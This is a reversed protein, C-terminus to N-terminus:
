HMRCTCSRGLRAGVTWREGNSAIAAACARADQPLGDYGIYGGSLWRLLSYLEPRMRQQLRQKAARMKHQEGPRQSLQPIQQDMLQVHQAARQLSLQLRQTQSLALAAAADAFEASDLTPAGSPFLQRELEALRRTHSSVAASDGGLLKELSGGFVDIMAPLNAAGASPQPTLYVSRLRLQAYEALAPLQVAQQPQTALAAERQQLLELAQLAAPPCCLPLSPHPLNHSDPTSPGATACLHLPCTFIPCTFICTCRCRLTLLQM